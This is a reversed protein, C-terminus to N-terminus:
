ILPGRASMEAESPCKSFGRRSQGTFNVRRALRAEHLGPYRDCHRCSTPAHLVLSDRHPYMAGPDLGDSEITFRM